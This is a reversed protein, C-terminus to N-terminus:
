ENWANLVLGLRINFDRCIFGSECASNQGHLLYILPECDNMGIWICGSFLIFLNRNLPNESRSSIQFDTHILGM